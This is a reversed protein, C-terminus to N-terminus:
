AEFYKEYAHAPALHARCMLKIPWKFLKLLPYWTPYDTFYKNPAAILSEYEERSLGQKKLCFDVLEENEFFPTTKLIELAQDRTILGTRIRASLEVVRWDFGFKRRAYNYVLAFIENDYHHQGTDVWGFKEHLLEEVGTGVDDYYNTINVIRIRKVLSWYLINHLDVNRFKKFEMRGFRKILSRCYRGDMYNWKLPTVGEERFSHSLIIYRVGEAAASDYLARAIGVDDTMDIYPVCARITCNTLERSEEWDAIVCHLDVEMRECLKSLNVKAIDADWGNDFHVALPRLGLQKCMYLCYSTDRGGSVGVVCDYKRGRGDRRIRAALGELIRTGEEGRPFEHELTDHIKCYNCVGDADFRIDPALTNMVCRTCTKHPTEPM